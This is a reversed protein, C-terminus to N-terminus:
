RILCGSFCISADTLHRSVNTKDLITQFIDFVQRWGAVLAAFDLSQINRGMRNFRLLRQEATQQQFIGSPIFNGIQDALAVEVAAFVTQNKLCELQQDIGATRGVDNGNLLLQLPVVIQFCGATEVIQNGQSLVRRGSGIDLAIRFDHALAGNDALQRFNSRINSPIGIIGFATCGLLKQILRFILYEM